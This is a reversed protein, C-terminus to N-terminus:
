HRTTSWRVWLAAAAPIGFLFVHVLLEERLSYGHSLGIGLNVASALLWVGIFVLAVVPRWAPKSLLMAVALLGLGALILILTRM